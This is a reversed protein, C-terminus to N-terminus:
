GRTMNPVTGEVSCCNICACNQYYEPCVNRGKLKWCNCGHFSSQYFDLKGHKTVGKMSVHINTNGEPMM